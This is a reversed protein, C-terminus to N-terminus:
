TEEMRGGGCGCAPPGVEDLWKRTMRVVCGCAPCEVKILRTGQKRHNSGTLAAHPYPGVRKLIPGIMALFEPGETTATMKGTLGIATALRKFPAKHGTGDPLAAHVLEHALVGAVRVPDSLAPSVFVERTEDASQGASWCEGIRKNKSSLARTSPWGCTARVKEPIEGGAKEFVPRLADTVRLLWEERTKIKPKM